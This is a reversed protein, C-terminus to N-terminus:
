QRHLVQIQEGPRGQSDLGKITQRMTKGDAGIVKHMTVVQKGNILYTVYWEGPGILTEVLTQGKPLSNDPDKVAGGGSPWLLRSSTTAGESTVRTLVMETEGSPLDRYVETQERPPSFFSAFKSNALDLKWTGVIPDAAIASGTAVLIVGLLVITNVM